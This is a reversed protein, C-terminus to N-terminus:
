SMYDSLGSLRKELFRKLKPLDFAELGAFLDQRPVQLRSFVNEGTKSRVIGYAHELRDILVREKIEGNGVAAVLDLWYGPLIRALICVHREDQRGKQPLDAVNAVKAKLLAVPGPIRVHIGETGIEFIYEPDQLEENSVGHVYRLVEILLPENNRGKAVVVGVENSPPKLSFYQPKEGASWAIEELVARDGLVDVDRSVFPALDAVRERYHLAWLNVAQGGVLLLPNTTRLFSAIAEPGQSSGGAEGM